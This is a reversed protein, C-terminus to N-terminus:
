EVIEEKGYKIISKAGGARIIEMDYYQRSREDGRLSHRQRQGLRDGNVEKSM